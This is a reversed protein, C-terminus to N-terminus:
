RKGNENGQMEMVLHLLRQSDAVLMLILEEIEVEKLAFTLNRQPESMVGKTEKLRQAMFKNLKPFNRCMLEWIVMDMNGALKDITAHESCRAYGAIHVLAERGIYEELEKPDVSRDSGVGM